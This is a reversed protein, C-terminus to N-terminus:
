SAADPAPHFESVITRLNKLQVEYRGDIVGGATELICGGYSVRPDPQLELQRNGLRQLVIGGASTLEEYHTPAVLVKMAGAFGSEYIIHEISQSVQRVDTLQEGIIKAIAALAIDTISSQLSDRYEGHQVALATIGKEWLDVKAYWEEQVAHEAAKRGDSFGREEAAAQATTLTAQLEILAAQKAAEGRQADALKEELEAIHRTSATLQVELEAVRDRASPTSRSVVQRVKDDTSAIHGSEPAIGPLDPYTGLVVKAASLHVSKEVTGQKM